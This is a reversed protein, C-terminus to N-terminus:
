SKNNAERETGCQHKNKNWRHTCCIDRHVPAVCLMGALIRGSTDGRGIDQEPSRRNDKRSGIRNNGIVNHIDSIQGSRLKFTGTIHSVAYIQRALEKKEM